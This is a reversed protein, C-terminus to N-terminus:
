WTCQGGYNNGSGGGNGNGTAACAIEGAVVGRAVGGWSTSGSIVGTVMSAACPNDRIISGLDMGNPNTSVFGGGQGGYSVNGTNYNKPNNFSEYNGGGNAGAVMDLQAKKLIEMYLDGLSTKLRSTLLAAPQKYWNLLKMDFTFGSGTFELLAM